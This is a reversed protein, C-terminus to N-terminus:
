PAPNCTKCYGLEELRNLYKIVTNIYEAHSWTLPSASVQEGTHPHLQEALVGSPLAYKVAWQLVERVEKFEKETQARAIAYQTYWLTTIIWPNGPTDGPIRYYGDGEYRAIGKISINRSLREKTEEIAKVLKLDNVPLVGFNFIGYASSADLTKDIETEKGNKRILKVFLGTEEDYLYKLIGKKVEEAGETYSAELETKGLLKAFKAAAILAGYVASATFTSTGYKEEWL